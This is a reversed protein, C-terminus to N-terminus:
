AAASGGGLSRDHVDDLWFLRPTCRGSAQRRAAARDRLESLEATGLTDEGLYLAVAEKLAEFLEDVTDGSAFVGPLDPIEAWYPGDEHHIRATYDM